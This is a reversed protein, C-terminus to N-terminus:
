GRKRKIIKSALTVLLAPIASLAKMQIKDKISQTTDELNDALASIAKLAQILYYTLLVTCTTIVLLFIALVLNLIDQTSM